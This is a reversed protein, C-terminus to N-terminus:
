LTQNWGMAGATYQNENKWVYWCLIQNQTTYMFRYFIQKIWVFESEANFIYDVSDDLHWINQQQMIIYM